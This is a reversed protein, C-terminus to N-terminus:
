GVESYKYLENPYEPFFVANISSRVAYQLVTTLFRLAAKFGVIAHNRQPMGVGSYVKFFIHDVDGPSTFIAM